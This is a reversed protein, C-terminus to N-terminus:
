GTSLQHAHSCLLEHGLPPSTSIRFTLSPRIPLRRPKPYVSPPQHCNQAPTRRSLKLVSTDNYVYQLSITKMILLARTTRPIFFFTSTYHVYIYHVDRYLTTGVLDTILVLYSLFRQWLMALLLAVRYPLSHQAVKFLHAGCRARGNKDFPVSVLPVRRLFSRCKFPMLRVYQISRFQQKINKYLAKCM